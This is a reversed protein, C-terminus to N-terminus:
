CYASDRLIVLAFTCCSDISDLGDFRCLTQRQDSVKTVMFLDFGLRGSSDSAWPLFPLSFAM